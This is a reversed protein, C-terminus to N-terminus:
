APLGDPGLGLIEAEPRADHVALRASAQAIARIRALRAASGDLPAASKAQLRLADLQQIVERNLSRRNVGAQQKLWQHLEDPVDRLSLTSM